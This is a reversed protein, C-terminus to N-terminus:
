CGQAGRAWRSADASIRAGLPGALLPGFANLKAPNGAAQVVALPRSEPSNAPVLLIRPTGSFSNLEPALKYAAFAPDKSKFWCANASLAVREMVPLAANSLVMPRPLTTKCGGLVAVAALLICLNPLSLSM